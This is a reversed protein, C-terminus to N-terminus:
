TSPRGTAEIKRLVALTDQATLMSIARSGIM